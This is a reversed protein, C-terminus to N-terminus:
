RIYIKGRGKCSACTEYFYNMANDRAKKRTMEMLGLRTWGVIQCKTRDRKMRTELQQVIQQRHEETEMDIFDIIIIGGVDRLRLLIAVEDAAEM